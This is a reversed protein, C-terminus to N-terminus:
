VGNSPSEDANVWTLAANAAAFHIFGNWDSVFMRGAFLGAALEYRSALAEDPGCPDIDVAAPEAYPYKPDPPDIALYQLGSLELRGTRRREREAISESDPNGVWMDLIFVAVRNVFDATLSHLLADHFTVGLESELDPITM